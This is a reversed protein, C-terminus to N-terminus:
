PRPRAARSGHEQLAIDRFENQNEKSKDCNRKGTMRAKKVYILDLGLSPRSGILGAM